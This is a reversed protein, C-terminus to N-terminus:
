YKARKERRFFNKWEDCVKIGRGGYRDYNKVYNCYCRNLISRYKRYLKTRSEGHSTHSKVWEKAVEKRMCGCSKQGGLIRSTKLVLEKGCDCRFVWTSVRDEVKEVAVLRGFRQGLLNLDAHRDRKQM